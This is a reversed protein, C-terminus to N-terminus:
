AGDVGAVAAMPAAARGELRDLLSRLIDQARVPVLSLVTESIGHSSECYGQLYVGPAFGQRGELRYDRLVRYGGEEDTGIWPALEELLPHEKDWRYGTCLVLGDCEITREDGRVLDRFRLRIADDGDDVQLLEQYPVIRAREKGMAREDYLARYIKKILPHDVVSYNVDRFSDIVGGRRDVPLDYFFDVMEPLFVENVFDSEDAPKYGFGRVIGTVDANPYRSFLCHFIEAGSQGSGVVVFRHDGSRDPFGRDMRTMFEHSHFARDSVRDLSFGIEPPVWPRGGTAVVVNRALLREEQGTAEDKAVVELLDVEGGQDLARVSRVRRHYRVRDSFQGAVWCLYDNFESRSPFLDRLNLFQFLRDKEQLYSLFTYRSRPNVPLVLDKLVTIQIQSGELLMGPHWCQDPRAELFLRSLEKGGPREAEEELAIALAMNAPGFGVGIVDYVDHGALGEVPRPAKSEVM